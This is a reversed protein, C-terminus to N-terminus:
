GDNRMVRSLSVIVRGVIVVLLLVFLLLAADHALYPQAQHPSAHPTWVRHTLFAAAVLLGAAIGPGLVIQRRTGTVALSTVPAACGAYRMVIPPTGGLV